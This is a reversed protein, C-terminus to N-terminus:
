KVEITDKVALKGEKVELLYVPSKIPERSEDFTITGSVGEWNKTKALEVRFKEPDDSNAAKIADAILMVADYGQVSFYDPQVGNNGAKYAEIFKKTKDSSKTEDVAFGCFFMSGEVAEAGMKLFVDSMLGDGGVLVSKLGQKRVEKMFLAGETYYGTFIIGDANKDKIATVQAAFNQDGDQISQEGVIEMKNEILAEKFLDTLGVSFDNNMSTVVVVKKWGLKENLYKTVAPAGVSNLLVDRYIYDGIEVVGPGVAGASLLVVKNQQAIPAAAKTIGTTPDGIIAVVKDRTILKQTVTTGESVKSGHDEEVIEIKKGLLGGATNIDEVAMKIGKLTEVGYAAHGGTKAGLFGIKITDGGTAAKEGEAQKKEDGGGGCGTLLLATIMLASLIFYIKSKKM